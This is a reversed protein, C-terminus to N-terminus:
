QNIFREVIERIAGEKKMQRLIQDVQLRFDDRYAFRKVEASYGLYGWQESIVAGFKLSQAIPKLGQDAKLQKLTWQITLKSNVYCDIRNLLLM